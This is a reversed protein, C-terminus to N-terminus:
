FPWDCIIKYLFVSVKTNDDDIRYGMVGSGHYEECHGGQNGGGQQEGDSM